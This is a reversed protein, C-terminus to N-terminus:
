RMIQLGLRSLVMGIVFNKFDQYINQIITGIPDGDKWQWLNDGETDITILFKKMNNRVKREDELRKIAANVCESEEGALFWIYNAAEADFEEPLSDKIRM